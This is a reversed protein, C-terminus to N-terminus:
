GTGQGLRSTLEGPWRPGVVPKSVLASPEWIDRAPVKTLSLTDATPEATLYVSVRCDGALAEIQGALYGNFATGSEGAGLVLHIPAPTGGAPPYGLPTPIIHGADKLQSRIAADNARVWIAYDLAQLVVKPDHGIKTEVVHLVGAADVGLFDIFGSRGFPPVSSTILGRWAPFERWLDTLGLAEPQGKLTAQLKHERMQSTLSGGDEIALAVKANIVAIEGLTPAGTFTKDFVERGPQPTKYQVGARIRLGGKTESAQLVQLGEHHWSLYGGRDHGVLGIEQTHINDLWSDHGAKLAGKKPMREPLEAMSELIAFRGPSRVPQPVSDEMGAFHFVRVETELWGIRSIAEIVMNDPVVLLLDRNHQWALGYALVEDTVTPKEGPTIVAVLSGHQPDEFWHAYKSMRAPAFPTPEVELVHAAARHATEAYAARHDRM